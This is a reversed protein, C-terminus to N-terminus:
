TAPASPRRWRQRAHRGVPVAQGHRGLVPQDGGFAFSYGYVVWVIMMVCAIVTTQMLVSLM